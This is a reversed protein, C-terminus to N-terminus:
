IKEIEKETKKNNNDKNNIHFLYDIIEYRDNYKKAKEYDNIYQAYIKKLERDNNFSTEIINIDDKKSEFLYNNYYKLIEKLKNIDINDNDNITKEKKVTYNIIFYDYADQGFIEILKKKNDKENFYNFLIKKKDERLKKIKKDKISKKLAKWISIYEKFNEETKLTNNYTPENIYLYNIIDFENNLEKAENLDLKNIYKEYNGSKNKIISQILNIDNKKSEFYYNIYHKLIINLTGEIVQWYKNYYYKSDNITKIIYNKRENLINDNFNISLLENINQKIASLLIKRTKYLFPIEYIYFTNKLIYKIIIFYANIKNENNFDAIKRIIYNNICEEDSKFFLLLEDNIKDTLYINELDLQKIINYSYDYNEIKKNVFLSKIIEIYIQELDYKLNSEIGFEKLVNEAKNKILLNYSNIGEIEKQNDDKYADSNIFNDKLVLIIISIILKRLMNNNKEKINEENIIKILSFDYSYNVIDIDEILLFLYVYYSLLYQKSEIVIIEDEKYLMEHIKKRNMYCFYIFVIDNNDKSFFKLESYNNILFPDKYLPKLILKNQIDYKNSM